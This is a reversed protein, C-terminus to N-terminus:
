SEERSGCNSLMLIPEHITVSATSRTPFVSLLSPKHIHPCPAYQFDRYRISMKSHVSFQELCYLRLVERITWHNLSQMGICPTYTQNRTLSKLDWMGQLWFLLFCLISFLFLITIFEIFSKLFPLRKEFFFM